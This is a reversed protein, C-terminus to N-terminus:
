GLEEMARDMAETATRRAEAATQAYKSITLIASAEDKTLLQEGGGM